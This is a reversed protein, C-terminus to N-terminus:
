RQEGIQSLVASAASRFAQADVLVFAGAYNTPIHCALRIQEALRLSVGAATAARDLPIFAAASM